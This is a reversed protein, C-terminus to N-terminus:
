SRERSRRFDANAADEAKKATDVIQKRYALVEKAIEEILAVNM